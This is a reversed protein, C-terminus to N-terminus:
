AWKVLRGTLKQTLDVISELNGLAKGKALSADMANMHLIHLYPFCIRLSDAGCEALHVVM